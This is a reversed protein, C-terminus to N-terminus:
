DGSTNREANRWVDQSWSSPNSGANGDGAILSGGGGGACGALSLTILAAGIIQKM